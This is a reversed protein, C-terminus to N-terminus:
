KKMSYKNCTNTIQFHLKPKGSLKLFHWEQFINHGNSTSAKILVHKHTVAM